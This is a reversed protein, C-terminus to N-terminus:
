QEQPTQLAGLCGPVGRFGRGPVPVSVGPVEWVVGSGGGSDGPIELFEGPVGMFIYFIFYLILFYVSNRRGGGFQTVM